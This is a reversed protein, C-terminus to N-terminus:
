SLTAKLAYNWLGYGGNGIRETGFLHRRNKMEEESGAGIVSVKVGEEEQLIFPKLQRDTRFAYLTDSSGVTFNPNLIVNFNFGMSKLGNVPNSAGSGLNSQSIATLVPGWITPTATMFTVSRMGSNLLHGQDDKFTMMHGVIGQIVLAAEDATPASATGVNLSAIHSNTCDNVATTSGTTGQAVPKDTDFYNQGTFDLGDSNILGTIIDEWYAAGSAALENIRLQIQGFKDRRLDDVSFELTQEWLKNRITYVEARPRTAARGGLWERFKPVSGLWSYTELEQNSSSNLWGLSSAWSNSFESELAEYFSGIVGPDALNTYNAATAM